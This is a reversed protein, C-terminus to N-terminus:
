PYKSRMATKSVLVQARKLSCFINWRLTCGTTSFVEGAGTVTGWWGWCIRTGTNWVLSKSVKLFYNRIKFSPCTCAKFAPFTGGYRADPRWFSFENRALSQAKSVKEIVPVQIGYLFKQSRLFYKKTEFVLVQARNLSSSFNWRLTCGTTLFFEDRALSQAESVKGIVPVKIGYWIRRSKM